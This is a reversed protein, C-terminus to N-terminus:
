DPNLPTPERGLAKLARLAGAMIAHMDTPTPNAQDSSPDKSKRYIAFLDGEIKALFNQERRHPKPKPM